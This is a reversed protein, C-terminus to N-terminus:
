RAEYAIESLADRLGMGFNDNIKSNSIDVAKKLFPNGKVYPQVLRKGIAAVFRGVQQRHGEHVFYAYNATPQLEGRLMGFRMNYSGRLRGTKVPTTDMADNRIDLISQNIAKNIYKSVIQPSKALAAKVENLNFIKVQINM